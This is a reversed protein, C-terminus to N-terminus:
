LGADTDIRQGLETLLIFKRAQMLVLAIDIASVIVTPPWKPQAGPVIMRIAGLNLSCAIRTLMVPVTM